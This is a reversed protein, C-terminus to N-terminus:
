EKRGATAHRGQEAASQYVQGLRLFAAGHKKCAVGCSQTLRIIGRQQRKAEM